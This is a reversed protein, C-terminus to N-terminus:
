PERRWDGNLEARLGHDRLLDKAITLVQIESTGGGITWLRMDRYLREPAHGQVYGAGGMIQIADDAAALASETAYWKAASVDRPRAAGTRDLAICKLLLNTVNERQVYMRALKQQTLQFAAIPRGFQEREVAYRLADDLCREIVGLAMAVVTLRESALTQEAAARQPQEPDGLLCGRPVRVEDLAIEGTPSAHMGMKAMPPGQTLGPAGREVVVPFVAAKDHPDRPRGDDFRAYILLVDACPANSVFTKAGNVVVHDGDIRVTTRMAFADSGTGPETLGWCGIKAFSLVPLACREILEADGRAAITAGCGFNAVVCLAFGPSVRALEKAFVAATGPDGMPNFPASGGSALSEGRARRASRSRLPEVIMAEIQFVEAMRRALAYPSQRGAELDAIAPEVERACFDRVMAEVAELTADFAFPNASETM